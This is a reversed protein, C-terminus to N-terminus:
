KRSMHLEGERGEVLVCLRLRWNESRGLIRYSKIEEMAFGASIGLIPVAVDCSVSRDGM